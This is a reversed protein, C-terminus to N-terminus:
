GVYHVIDSVPEPDGSKYVVFRVNTVHTRSTNMNAEFILNAGQSLPATYMRKQGENIYFYYTYNLEREENNTIVFRVILSNNLEIRRIYSEVVTENTTKTFLQYAILALLVAALSISFVSLIRRKAPM